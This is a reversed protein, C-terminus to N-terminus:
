VLGRMSIENRTFENENIGRLTNQQRSTVANNLPDPTAAMATYAAALNSDAMAAPQVQATAALPNFVPDAGANVRANPNEAAAKSAALQAMSMM